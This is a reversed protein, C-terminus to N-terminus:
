LHFHLDYEHIIESYVCEVKSFHDVKNNVLHEGPSIMMIIRGKFKIDMKMYYPIKLLVQDMEINEGEISDSTPTSSSQEWEILVDSTKSFMSKEGEVHVEINDFANDFLKLLEDGQNNTTKVEYSSARDFENFFYLFDEDFM